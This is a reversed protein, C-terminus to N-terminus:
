NNLRPMQHTPDLNLRDPEKFWTKCVYEYPTLGSLIKLRHAFNYAMFSTPSTAECSTM